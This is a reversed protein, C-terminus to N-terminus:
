FRMAVSVGASKTDGWPVIMAQRESRQRTILFGSQWASARASWCTTGSISTRRCVPWVSLAPSPWRLFARLRAKATISPPPLLLLAAPIDPRFVKATAETPRLEPFTEKLGTTVLLAAGISGAAQLAGQEHGKILPLGLAVATLGYAGVDSATAWADEDKAHAPTPLADSTAVLILAVTRSHKM